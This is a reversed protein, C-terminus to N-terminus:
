KGPMDVWADFLEDVQEHMFKRADPINEFQQDRFTLEVEAMDEADLGVGIGYRVLTRRALTEEPKPKPPRVLCVGTESEYHGCASGGCVCDTDLPCIKEKSM